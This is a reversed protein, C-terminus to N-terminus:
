CACNGNTPNSNFASARLHEVAHMRLLGAPLMACQVGRFKPWHSRFICKHALPDATNSGLDLWHLTKAGLAIDWFPRSVCCQLVIPIFTCGLGQLVIIAGLGFFPSVKSKKRLCSSMNNCFKSNQPGPGKLQPISVFSLSSRQIALPSCM